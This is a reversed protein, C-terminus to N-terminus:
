TIRQASVLVDDLFDFLVRLLLVGEGFVLQLLLVISLQTYHESPWFPRRPSPSPAVKTFDSLSGGGGERGSVLLNYIANRKAQGM